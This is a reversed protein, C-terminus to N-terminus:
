KKENRYKLPCKSKIFKSFEKAEGIEFGEKSLILSNKEDLYLFFYKDTEYIKHINFYTLREFNKKHRIKIYHNYFYFTFTQMKNKVKQTPKYKKFFYIIIGLIIVFLIFIWNKYVINFILMYLFLLSMLIIQTLEKGGFKNVHFKEFNNCNEKTYKTTNKFLVKM